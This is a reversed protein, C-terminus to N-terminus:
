SSEEKKKKQPKVKVKKETNFDIASNNMLVNQAALKMRSRPLRTMTIGMGVERELDRQQPKIHNRPLITSGSKKMTTKGWRSNSLLTRTFKNIESFDNNSKNPFKSTREFNLKKM